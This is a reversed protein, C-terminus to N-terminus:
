RQQIPRGAPPTTKTERPHEVADDIRDTLHLIQKVVLEPHPVQGFVFREQKGATQIYVNGFRLITPWFGKVDSTVDQIRYLRLEAVSRNFLGSQEIDVVRRDTVLYYDLYYDLWFGYILMWVFMVYISAAMVVLGFGLTGTALEWGSQIKWIVTVAAPIILLIIFLGAKGLFTFWHRHLVLIIREDREQGPFHERIFM